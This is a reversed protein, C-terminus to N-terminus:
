GASNQWRALALWLMFSQVALAVDEPAEITTRRSFYGRSIVGAEAGAEVLQIKRAWTWFNGRLEFTRGSWHVTFFHYVSHPEAWAIENRDREVALRKLKGLGPPM